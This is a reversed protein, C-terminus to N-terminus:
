LALVKSINEAAEFERSIEDEDYDIVPVNNNGLYEIFDWKSLGSLEAAKGMSLLKEQFYKLALLKRSESVIRERTLGFCSLSLYLSEPLKIVAQVTKM